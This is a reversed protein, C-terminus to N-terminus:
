SCVCKKSCKCNDDYSLDVNEGSQYLSDYAVKLTQATTHLNLFFEYVCSCVNFPCDVRQTWFNVKGQRFTLVTAGDSSIDQIVGLTFGEQDCPVWVKQHEMNSHRKNPERRDTSLFKNQFFSILSFLWGCYCETWNSKIKSM